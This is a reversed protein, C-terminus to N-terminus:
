ALEWSSTPFSFIDPDKSFCQVTKQVSCLAFWDATLDWLSSFPLPSHTDQSQHPVTFCQSGLNKNSTLEHLAESRIKKRKQPFIPSHDTLLHLHVTFWLSPSPLLNRKLSQNKLTDKSFEWFGTAKQSFLHSSHHPKSRINIFSLVHSVWAQNRTYM